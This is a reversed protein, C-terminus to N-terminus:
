SKRKRRRRIASPFSRTSSYFELIRNAYIDASIRACFIRVRIKSRIGRQKSNIRKYSSFIDILDQNSGLFIVFVFRQVFPLSFVILEFYFIETEISPDTVRCLTITALGYNPVLTQCIYIIDYTPPPPNDDATHLIFNRDTM